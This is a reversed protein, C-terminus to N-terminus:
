PSTGKGAEDPQDGEPRTGPAADIELWYAPDDPLENARLAALKRRDRRRRIVFLGTAIATLLLTIVTGHTVFVLWGYRRRVDRKWLRELQPSSLRYVGRLAPEISQQAHWSDLFRTFTEENGLSWLYQVATASLLYAVRADTAGAPWGLELSDLPPARDFVFAVRLLWGADQDLQGASWTAYGETFWRPVHADGLRRQLLIHALEHRLVARLNTVAGRESGYGPLVIVASDPIAIGAGWAPTGRGTLARFEAEDAAIRITTPAAHLLRDPIGPFPVDGANRALERALREVRPQFEFRLAGQQLSAPLAQAQLAATGLRAPAAGSGPFGLGCVFALLTLARM